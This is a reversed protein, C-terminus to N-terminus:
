RGNIMTIGFNMIYYLVTPLLLLSLVLSGMVSYGFSFTEEYVGDRFTMFFCTGTMIACVWFSSYKLCIMDTPPAKEATLHMLREVGLEFETLKVWVVIQLLNTISAPLSYGFTDLLDIVSLGGQYCVPLGIIFIGICICARVVQPNLDRGKIKHIFDEVMYGVTEVLAFQTDIGIFIMTVFFLLVWLSPWPMTSLCAPFTIFLLGPGSIPLQDLALDFKKCFYGLYGFIIFSALVGTFTNILPIRTNNTTVTEFATNSKRQCRPLELFDDHFRSGLFVSFISSNLRREM